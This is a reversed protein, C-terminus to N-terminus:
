YSGGRTTGAGQQKMYLPPAHSLHCSVEGNTLLKRRGSQILTRHETSCMAEFGDMECVDKRAGCEEKKKEVECKDACLVSM